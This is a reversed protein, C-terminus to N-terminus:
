KLVNNYCPLLKILRYFMIFIVFSDTLCTCKYTFHVEKSMIYLAIYCVACGGEHKLNIETSVLFGRCSVEETKNSKSSGYIMCHKSESLGHLRCNLHETWDWVLLGLLVLSRYNVYHSASKTQIM